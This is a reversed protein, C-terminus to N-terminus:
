ILSLIMNSDAWPGATPPEHATLSGEAPLKVGGQLLEDGGFVQSQNHQQVELFRLSSDAPVLRRNESKIKSFLHQDIQKM